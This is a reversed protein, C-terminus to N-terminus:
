RYGKKTEYKVILDRNAVEYKNFVSEDFDEPNITGKYWSCSNFYNQLYEDDFKRGHRAFLENRAIRCEEASLGKLDKMKLYESDSNSLIYEMTDTESIADEKGEDDAYIDENNFSQKEEVEDEDVVESDQDHDDDEFDLNEKESVSYGIDNGANRQIDESKQGFATHEMDNRDSKLKKISFGIIIASFMVGVLILFTWSDRWKKTDKPLGSVRNAYNNSNNITENTDKKESYLTVSSGAAHLEKKIVAAVGALSSDGTRDIEKDLKELFYLAKSRSKKICWNTNGSLAKFDGFTYAWCVFAVSSVYGSEASKELNRFEYSNEDFRTIQNTSDAISWVMYQSYEKGQDAAKRFYQEAKEADKAFGGSGEYYLKGIMEQAGSHGEDALRLLAKVQEKTDSIQLIRRMDDLESM